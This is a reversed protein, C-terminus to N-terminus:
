GTTSVITTAGTMSVTVGDDVRDDRDDVGDGGDRSSRGTTSVTVRDDLRDDRRRSRRGRRRCSRGSRRSRTGGHRGDRGDDLRDDGIAAVTVGTTSGATTEPSPGVGEMAAGAIGGLAGGGDVLRGHRRGRALAAPSAGDALPTSGPRRAGCGGDRDRGRVCGLGRLGRVGALAAGGSGCGWPASGPTGTRARRPVGRRRPRPGRRRSPWRCRREACRRPSSRCARSARWERAGPGDPTPKEPDKPEDPM